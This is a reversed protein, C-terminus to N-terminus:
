SITLFSFTYAITFILSKSCQKISSVQLKFWNLPWGHTYLFVEATTAISYCKQQIYIVFYSLMEIIFYIILKLDM